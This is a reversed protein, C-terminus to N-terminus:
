IPHNLNKTPSLFVIRAQNAFRPNSFGCQRFSQGLANGLAFHRLIQLAFTQEAQIHRQHHCACFVAAVKFFAKPIKQLLQYPFLVGDQKNIFNM